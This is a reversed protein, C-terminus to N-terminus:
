GKSRVIEGGKVVGVPIVRSEGMEKKGYSDVLVTKQNRLRLIAIDARSGARLSGIDKDRKLTLAPKLTTAEIVDELSMGLHLFKAMTTPLDFVPGDVNGSWLDTSITHPRLGEKLALRAVGWSFSGQGHGVDLVVGRKSASFAEERITKMDGTIGDHGRDRGYDVYHFVHTAIDGRKLYRFLDPAFHCEAMLLCRAEDAARRALGLVKLGHHAWKVGVITEANRRITKVTNGLNVFMQAFSENRYTLLRPWEQDTHRKRQSTYEIMGLSEINLFALIKVKQQKTVYELFPTYNLEGSSGADVVTTTGKMLCNEYPDICLGIVRHAVHAHLDVLGPTVMMGDADVVKNGSSIRQGIDEILGDSVAVDKKEFLGRAPDIVTGGRIV